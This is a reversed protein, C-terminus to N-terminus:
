SVTAETELIADVRRVPIGGFTTVKHGAIDELDLAMNSGNITQRRLFSAVKRNTYFAANGASLNPVLELAQVMLDPIHAGTAGTKILESVDINAIRVVYRWDRLTVGCNWKYHTRYGEYKGNNADELTVQGKDERKFGASLGKPYIGHFTNPSSVILWISTNDSGSGGGSIINGGNEASLSSYRPALGTFRAPTVASNGYFLTSLFAQNMGELHAADESMRFAATNGNLDALDKDVEAYAELMGTADSVQVTTSKTPQVGYNLMRWTPQPLGSRITTKHATGNNAEIWTLENLVENTQNMIEVISKAIGGDESRTAIDLLTPHTNGVAAM